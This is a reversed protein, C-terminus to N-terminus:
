LCKKVYAAIRALFYASSYKTVPIALKVSFFIWVLFLYNSNTQNKLNCCESGNRNHNILTCCLLNLNAKTFISLLLLTDTDGNCNLEM